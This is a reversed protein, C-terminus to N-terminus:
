AWNGLFSMLLMGAVLAAMALVTHVMNTHRLYGFLWDHAWMEILGTWLLVGASFSDLTGLAIITSKDNGNFQNLVGIGIAMGIPTILAFVLAMIVKTVITATKLDIIRSGLAIGEFFQHFVIVIFLTIFYTDATVALTLGILISHFVIGAELIMVSIKEKRPDVLSNISHASVNEPSKEISNEMSDQISDAHNNGQEVDHIHAGQIEKNNIRSKGLLRYAVYEILFAVFLGAMTIAPGTAEYSLRLCSNGWILAAHTMLHVFATSIVVGTGFQKIITILVNEQSMKFLSKLVMPGFSGIASTVLIVFLLGIRLPINYDRQVAECTQADANTISDDECHEVGAHFHCNSSSSSTSSSPASEVDASNVIFQVHEEGHMCYTENDHAHCGTYNTPADAITPTIYGENGEPDKCYQLDGHMHCGTVSFTEEHDHSEEEGAEDEHDHEHEHDHDHEEEDARQVINILSGDVKDQPIQFKLGAAMNESRVMKQRSPTNFSGKSADITQALLALLWISNCKNIKM